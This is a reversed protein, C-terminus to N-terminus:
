CMRSQRRIDANPSDVPMTGGRRASGRKSAFPDIIWPWDEARVYLGAAVPNGPIYILKASFQTGREDPRLRHDFYGEQWM